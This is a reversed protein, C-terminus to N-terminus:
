RGAGWCVIKCLSQHASAGDPSRLGVWEKAPCPESNALGYRSQLMSQLCDRAVQLFTHVEVYVGQLFLCIGLTGVTSRCYRCEEGLASSLWNWGTKGSFAIGLYLEFKLPFGYSQNATQFYVTCCSVLHARLHILVSSSRSSLRYM